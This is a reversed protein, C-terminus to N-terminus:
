MFLIMTDATVLVISVTEMVTAFPAYTNEMPDM